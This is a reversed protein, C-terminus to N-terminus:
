LNSFIWQRVRPRPWAPDRDRAVVDDPVRVERTPIETTEIGRGALDGLPPRRAPRLGLGVTNRRDVVNDPVALGARRRIGDHAEIRLGLIELAPRDRTAAIDDAVGRDCPLAVEHEGVAQDIGHSQDFDRLSTPLSM